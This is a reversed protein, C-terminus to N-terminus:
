LVCADLVVTFFGFPWLLGCLGFVGYVFMFRFSFGFSGFSVGHLVGGTAWGDAAARNSCCSAFFHVPGGRVIRVIRM